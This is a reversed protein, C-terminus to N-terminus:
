VPHYFQKGIKLIDVLFDFRPGGRLRPPSMLALHGGFDSPLSHHFRRAYDAPLRHLVRDNRLFRVRGADADSHHHHHGSPRCHHLVDGRASSGHGHTSHHHSCISLQM